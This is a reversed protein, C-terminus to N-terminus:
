EKRTSLLSNLGDQSTRTSNVVQKEEKIQEGLYALVEDNYAYHLPDEPVLWLHAADDELEKLEPKTGQDQARPGPHGVIEVEIESENGRGRTNKETNLKDELKYCVHM